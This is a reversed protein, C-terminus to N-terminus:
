GRELVRNITKELRNKEKEPKDIKELLKLVKKGLDLYNKNGEQYFNDFLKIHARFEAEPNWYRLGYYDEIIKFFRNHDKKIQEIFIKKPTMIKEEELLKLIESVSYAKEKRFYLFDQYNKASDYSIEEELLFEYLKDFTFAEQKIDLLIEIYSRFFVSLNAIRETEERYESMEDTLYFKFTDNERHELITIKKHNRLLELFTSEATDYPHPSLYNLLDRFDRFDLIKEYVVELSRNEEMLSEVHYIILEMKHQGCYDVAEKLNFTSRFETSGLWELVYKKLLKKLVRKTYKESYATDLYM